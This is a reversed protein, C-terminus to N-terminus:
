IRFRLRRAQKQSQVPRNTDLRTPIWITPKRMCMSLHRQRVEYGVTETEDCESDIGSENLNRRNKAKTEPSSQLSDQGEASEKQKSNPQSQKLKQDEQSTKSKSILPPLKGKDPKSKIPNIPPLRNLRLNQTDASEYTDTRQNKDNDGANSKNGTLSLNSNVSQTDIDIAQVKRRGKGSGPRKKLSQASGAPTTMRPTIEADSQDVLKWTDTVKQLKEITRLHEALLISIDERTITSGKQVLREAM